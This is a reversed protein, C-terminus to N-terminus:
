YLTVDLKALMFSSPNFSCGRGCLVLNWFWTGYRYHIQSVSVYVQRWGERVRVYLEGREMIYALTGEHLNRSISLMMQYTQLVTVQTTNFHLTLSATSM